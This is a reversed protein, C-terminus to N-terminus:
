LRQSQSAPVRTPEDGNPDRSLRRGAGYEVATLVVKDWQALINEPLYKRASIAAAAAM